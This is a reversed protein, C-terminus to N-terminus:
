SWEAFVGLLFAYKQPFLSVRTIRPFHLSNKKNNNNPQQPKKPPPSHGGCSDDSWCQATDISSKGQCVLATVPDGKTQEWSRWVNFESNQNKNEKLNLIKNDLCVKDIEEAKINESCTRLTYIKKGLM